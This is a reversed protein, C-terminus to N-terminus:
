CTTTYVNFENCIFQRKESNMSSVSVLCIVSIDNRFVFYFLHLSPPTRTKSPSAVFSPASPQSAYWTGYTLGSSYPCCCRRQCNQWCCRRMNLLLLLLFSRETKGRKKAGRVDDRKMFLVQHEPRLMCPRLSLMVVLVNPQKRANCSKLQHIHANTELREGRINTSTAQLLVDSAACCRV